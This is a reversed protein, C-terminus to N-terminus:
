APVKADPRSRSQLGCERSDTNEWWWRGARSDEGPEIARTCPSCGISPFGQDHLPNYVLGKGRIYAWVDDHTWDLIPSVKYLGNASDFEVAPIQARDASQERRVGTVWAGFGKIARAFPEIKRLHCCAKRAAVDYYFGNIGNAAVWAEVAPAQPHILRMRRQYRREIMELLTYTQEHLRGTDLTFIDIAPVHTWILDTLVMSEAGLSCSYTVTGYERLAQQLQAVSRSVKDELQATLTRAGTQQQAM